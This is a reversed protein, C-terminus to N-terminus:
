GGYAPPGKGFGLDDDAFDVGGGGGGDAGPGPAFSPPRRGMMAAASMPPPQPPYFQGGGGGMARRAEFADRFQVFSGLAASAAQHKAAKKTRRKTKPPSCFFSAPTLPLM